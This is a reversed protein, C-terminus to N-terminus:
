SCFTRAHPSPFIHVRRRLRKTCKEVWRKGIRHYMRTSRGHVASGRLTHWSELHPQDELWAWANGCENCNKKNDLVESRKFGSLHAKGKAIRELRWHHHSEACFSISHITSSFLFYNYSFFYRMKSVCFKWCTKLRSIWRNSTKSCQDGCYQSNRQLIVAFQHVESAYNPM